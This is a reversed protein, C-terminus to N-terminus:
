LGKFEITVDVNTPQFERARSQIQTTDVWHAYIGEVKFGPGADRVFRVLADHIEKELRDKADAVVTTATNM